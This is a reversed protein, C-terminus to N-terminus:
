GGPACGPMSTACHRITGACASSRAGIVSSVALLALVGGAMWRLQPDGNMLASGGAASDRRGPMKRPIGGPKVRRSPRRPVLRVRGLLSPWCNGVQAPHPEHKRSVRPDTRRGSTAARSSVPRGGFPGPDPGPNRTGESSSRSHVTGPADVMQELPNDHATPKKREILVAHFVRHALLPPGTRRDLLGAAVPCTLLRVETPAVPGLIVVADLNSTHNAFYIRPRVSTQLRVVGGHSWDSLRMSFCIPIM